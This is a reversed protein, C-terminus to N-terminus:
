NKFPIEQVFHIKVVILEFHQDFVDGNHMVLVIAAIGICNMVSVNVGVTDIIKDAGDLSM